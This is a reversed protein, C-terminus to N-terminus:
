PLLVRVEEVAQQSRPFGGGADIALHEQRRQPLRQLVRMHTVCAASAMTEWGNAVVARSAASLRPMGQTEVTMCGIPYREARSGAIM